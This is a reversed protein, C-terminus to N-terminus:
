LSLKKYKYESITKQMKDVSTIKDRWRPDNDVDIGKLKALGSLDNHYFEDVTYEGSVVFEPMEWMLATQNKFNDFNSMWSVGFKIAEWFNTESSEWLYTMNANEIFGKYLQKLSGEPILDWEINWNAPDGETYYKQEKITNEWESYNGRFDKDFSEKNALYLPALGVSLNGKLNEVLWDLSSQVSDLTEYPLGVILGLGVAYRGNDKKFYDQIDLLGQKIKDPHMGKGISKGAMPHLTEIGYFHSTYGIRKMNEWDQPRTIMLDARTYGTLNLLPLNLSDISNAIKAIKDSSENVTEDVIQYNTIGWNDYNRQLEYTLTDIDRLHPEKRGIFHFACFKCKFMCGRSMEISLFDNPILFDRNEYLVKLDTMTNAPHNHDCSVFKVDKGWINKETINATNPKGALKNLLELGGLEGYGTVIYDVNLNYSTFMDRSGAVIPIHPYKLKFWHFFLNFQEIITEDCFILSSSIFKTKHTIRSRCLEQFEELTWEAAYDIVEIDWGNQRLHSAMRHAGAGRKMETRYKGSSFTSNRASSLILGHM